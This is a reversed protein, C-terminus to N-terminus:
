IDDGPQTAEARPPGALGKNLPANKSFITYAPPEFTDVLRLRLWPGHPAEQRARQGLVLPAAWWPGTQDEVLVVRPRWWRPVKRDLLIRSLRKAGPAGLPHFVEGLRPPRALLPWRVAKLPLWAEPGRAALRPPGPLEEAMLWGQLHPLWLWGPGDLRATCDAPPGAQDLRLCDAERAAWLGGPLSLQRGPRGEVLELVQEVHPALLHQGQGTLRSALHRVLRRRGALALGAFAGLGLCLSTGQRRGHTAWKEQCWAAWFEEEQACLGALRSLAEVARPNILEEALPILKLRARNRLPGLEQNSPDHRWDQGLSKLWDRLDARRCALLPRWCPAEWPRMGALGTPGSGSLARCLLTEAQDDATHALAIAGAGAQAAMALLAQRRALRAAEEPSRGQPRVQVRRALCQLGLGAALGAVFAADDGSDPRLGHDVHGVLLRWGQAPALLHLLRLLAVSDGGGSVGVLLPGPGPCHAALGQALAGALGPKVGALPPILSSDYSSDRSAAM